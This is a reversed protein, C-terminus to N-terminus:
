QIGGEEQDPIIEVRGEKVQTYGKGEDVFVAFFTGRAAATGSPTKIRFDMEEAAGPRLLAGLGGSRVDILIKKPSVTEDVTELVVSSDAAVRIASRPTIVIVVRSDPGTTVTSGVEVRDGVKLEVAEGGGPPTVKVDGKAITVKGSQPAAEAFLGIGLLIVLLSGFKGTTRQRKM